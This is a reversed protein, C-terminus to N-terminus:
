IPILWGCVTSKQLTKSSSFHSFSLLANLQRLNKLSKEKDAGEAKQVHKRVEPVCRAHVLINADEIVKGGRASTKVVELVGGIHEDGKGGDHEDKGRKLELKSGECIEKDARYHGFLLTPRVAGLIHDM